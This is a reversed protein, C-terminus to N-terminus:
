QPLIAGIGFTSGGRAKGTADTFVGAIPVGQDAPSNVSPANNSNLTVNSFVDGNVQSYNDWQTPTILGRNDEWYPWVYNQASTNYKIPLGSAWVNHTVSTFSNLNGEGVYVSAGGLVGIELHPAVYLNNALVLGQAPGTTNLFNGITGHNIVTNNAFTADQVERNYLPSYGNVVYAVANDRYSINNRVMVHFAGPQLLLPATLTNSDFVTWQFRQAQYSPDNALDARNLPGVGVPGDLLSNNSVYAYSGNQLAITSKSIDQRDVSERDKNDLTNYAILVRTAGGGGSRLIHERTSNVANNGLVVVDSGEIWVLYARLGTPSPASNGQVLLDTPQASGDVASGVNLFTNYLVSINYGGTRIAFPVGTEEADGTFISDFTLNQISVNKSGGQTAILVDNGNRAGDWLLVPQPGSGYSSITVNAYGNVNLTNELRFTDGDRFLLQTDGSLLASARAVSRIPSSPTLGDNNDNGNAAVYITRVNDPLITVPLTAQVPHGDPGTITLTVTYNGPTYYVHAANWGDLQNYSSYRTTDGFNWQFHDTLVTTGTALGSALGHVHIAHGATVTIPSTATIVPQIKNTTPPTVVQRVFDGYNQPSGPVIINNGGDGLLQDAGPGGRISDNGNGGHLTSNGAGAILTDNGGGGWIQDDGKGAVISDSGNSGHITDDGGGGLITAGISNTASFSCGIPVTQSCSEFERSNNGGYFVIKAVAWKPFQSTVGDQTAIITQGDGSLTATLVNNTNDNGYLTISGGGTFSTINPGGPVVYFGDHNYIGNSFLRRDELSEFGARGASRRKGAPRSAAGRGKVGYVKYPASCAALGAASLGAQGLLSALNLSSDGVMSRSREGLLAKMMKGM